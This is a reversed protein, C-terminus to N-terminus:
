KTGRISRRKDILYARLRSFFVFGVLVNGTLYTILFPFSKIDTGLNWSHVSVFVFAAYNLIHYRRWFRRLYPKTRFYGATLGLTILLFSLKGLDFFVDIGPLFSVFAGMLGQMKIDLAIQMLPHIVVFFYAILGHTIHYKYARAGLINIWRGLRSGLVIQIFLLTFALLGFLKQLFNIFVIDNKIVVGHSTNLLITVPASLLFLFYVAIM